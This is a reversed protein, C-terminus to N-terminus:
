ATAETQAVHVVRAGGVRSVWIGRGPPQPTPTVGGFLQGDQRTGDMILAACANDRLAALVPEHMARGLGGTRRALVMSFGIDRAHPILEALPGLPNNRGMVLDADDVVVTVEPGQWWSRNKLQEATVDPGPLRSRLVGALEAVMDAAQGAAGAYGALHEPPVEGLLGRRYDILLIRSQASDRHAVMGRLLTRVTTTRGCSPAGVVVLGPEEQLDWLVPALATEDIALPIQHPTLHVKEDILLQDLDQPRFTDPLMRVQPVQEDGRSRAFAAVHAIDEGACDAILFHKEDTTIGRGPLEPVLAAVKRNVMSDMAEGLRLEIRTGLLDRIAPRLATWRHVTVVLHIGLSLGDAALSTLQEEYAFYDQRLTAWGDIVVVADPLGADRATAMNPWGHERFLAEREARLQLVEALTRRLRDAQGRHAVGAVHPLRSLMDLGGGAFDVIYIHLQQASTTLALSTVLTRLATSKGSHPAGVIAVHGGAGRLDITLLQQRQEQPVDVMGIAATLASMDADAIDALGIREPLPPLWIQHVHGGRTRLKEVMVDLVVRPEADSTVADSQRVERPPESPKPANVKAMPGATFLVPRNITAATDDAQQRHSARPRVPGSVYSAQFRTLQDAGSKIFGAGPQAPLHYADPVGLVTRSETASFTKLGIRYSLHSDLGRLRGEELRQSALLLHMRLSRGLRGIAVFLEIFEPKQCLMESFEDVVIFLAPLPELPKGESDTEGRARAAEYDAVSSYNGASRLLEQRRLMEGSLADQMRDVLILEDALNTIVASTHPLEELGLFTAGGKFDVLVLNLQDPSHTAALSLVICRLLESKGSGTAGICLGHPGVGGEATEKIDLYLPEGTAQLGIPARLRASGSRPLWLNEPDTDDPHAIGLMRHLDGSTQTVVERDAGSGAVAYRALRRAIVDAWLTSLGDAEAFDEVGTATHANLRGSDLSCFLGDVLAWQGIVSGETAAIELFTVPGDFQLLEQDAPNNPDVEYGDVVIVVAVVEEPLTRLQPLLDAATHARIRATGGADGHTPHNHHPLWKLWEWEPAVGLHAIVVQSPAHFTALSALMARTLARADTAPGALGIFRFAALSVGVPVGDVTSMTRILQRLAVASVPELDEAPPTEPVTLPASNLQTAVGVRVVIFDPDQADREWMRRTGAFTWLVEPDPADHLEAALQQTAQTQVTDSVAALHRHYTRRQRDIDQTTPGGGALMGVMSMLMMMPFLFGMPSRATGSMVFLAIMGVVAVVMVLPMLKKYLPVVAPPPLQPPPDPTVAGSPLPPAAVRDGIEVLIEGSM